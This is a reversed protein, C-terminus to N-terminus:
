RLVFSEAKGASIDERTLNLSLSMM